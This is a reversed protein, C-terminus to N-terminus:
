SQGLVCHRQQAPDCCFRARHVCPNIRLFASPAWVKAYGPAAWTSVPPQVAAPHLLLSVSSEREKTLFLGCALFCGLWTQEPTPFQFSLRLSFSISLFKEKDSNSSDVTIVEDHVPVENAHLWKGKANQSRSSALLCSEGQKQSNRRKEQGPCM